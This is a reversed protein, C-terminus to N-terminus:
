RSEDIKVKGVGGSLACQDNLSLRPAVRVCDAGADSRLHVAFCAAAAM